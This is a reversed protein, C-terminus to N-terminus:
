RWGDDVLAAEVWGAQWLADVLVSLRVDGGLAGRRAQADDRM